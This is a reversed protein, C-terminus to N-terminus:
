SCAYRDLLPHLMSVTVMMLSLDVPVQGNVNMDIGHMSTQPWQIKQLYRLPSRNQGTGSHQVHEHMQPDAKEM